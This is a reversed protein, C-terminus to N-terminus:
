YFLASQKPKCFLYIPALMISYSVTKVGNKKEIPWFLDIVGENQM